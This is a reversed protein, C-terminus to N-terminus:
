AKIFKSLWKGLKIGSAYKIYWRMLYSNLTPQSFLGRQPKTKPYWNWTPLEEPNLSLNTNKSVILCYFTSPVIEFLCRNEPLTIHSQIDNLMGVRFSDNSYEWIWVERQSFCSTKSCFNFSERNTIKFPLSPLYPPSLHEEISELFM